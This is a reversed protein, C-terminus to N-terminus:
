IKRTRPGPTVHLVPTVSLGEGAAEVLRSLHAKDVASRLNPLDYQVRALIMDLAALTDTSLASGASAGVWLVIKECSWAIGSMKKVTLSGQDNIFVSRLYAYDEPDVDSPCSGFIDQHVHMLGTSEDEDALVIEDTVGFRLWDDLNLDPHRSLISQVLEDTETSQNGISRYGFRLVIAAAEVPTTLAVFGWADQVSPATMFVGNYSEITRGLLGDSCLGLRVLCPAAVPRLAAITTVADVLIACVDKLQVGSVSRHRLMLPIQDIISRWFLGGRMSFFAPGDPPDADFKKWSSRAPFDKSMFVSSVGASARIPADYDWLDRCFDHILVLAPRWLDLRGHEGLTQTMEDLFNPNAVTFTAKSAVLSAEAAEKDGYVMATAFMQGWNWKQANVEGVILFDDLDFLGDQCKDWSEESGSSELFLDRYLATKQTFDILRQNWFDEQRYDPLTINEDINSPPNKFIM